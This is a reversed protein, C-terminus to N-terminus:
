HGDAFEFEQGGDALGRGIPEHDGVAEAAPFLNRLCGVAVGEMEGFDELHCEM